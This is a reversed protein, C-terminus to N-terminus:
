ESLIFTRGVVRVELGASEALITMSDTLSTARINVSVKRTAAETLASPIVLGVNARDALEELATAVPVNRCKFDMHRALVLENPVIVLGTKEIYYDGEIQECLIELISKLSVGKLAPLCVTGITLSDARNDFDHKRVRITLNGGQKQLLHELAEQLEVGKLPEEIDIRKEDLVKQIERGFLEISPKEDKANAALSSVVAAVVILGLGIKATRM